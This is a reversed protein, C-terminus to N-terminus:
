AHGLQTRMYQMAAATTVNAVTASLNGEICAAGFRKKCQQECQALSQHCSSAQKCTCHGLICLLCM